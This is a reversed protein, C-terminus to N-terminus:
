ETIEVSHLEEEGNWFVQRKICAIQNVVNYYNHRFHYSGLYQPISMIAPFRYTEICKDTLTHIFPFDFCMSLLVNENPLHNHTHFTSKQNEPPFYMNGTCVGGRMYGVVIYIVSKPYCEQIMVSLHVPHCCKHSDLYFTYTTNMTDLAIAEIKTFTGKHTNQEVATWLYKGHITMASAKIKMTKLEDHDDEEKTLPYIAIDGFYNSRFLMDDEVVTEFLTNDEWKIKKSTGKAFVMSESVYDLNDPSLRVLLSKTNVDIKQIPRPLWREQLGKIQDGTPKFWQLQNSRGLFINGNHSTVTDVPPDGRRISWIKTLVKFAAIVRM